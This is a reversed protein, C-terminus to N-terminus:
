TTVNLRREPIEFGALPKNKHQKIQSEIRGRDSAMQKDIKSDLIPDPANLVSTRKNKFRDLNQIYNKKSAQHTSNLDKSENYFLQTKYLIQNYGIAKEKFKPTTTNLFAKSNGSSDSSLSL